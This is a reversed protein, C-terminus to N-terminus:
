LFGYRRRQGIFVFRRRHRRQRQGGPPGVQSSNWLVAHQVDSGALGASGVITSGDNSIAVANSGFGLNGLDTMIGADTTPNTLVWKFADSNFTPTTSFGVVITGDGSVANAQSMGSPGALTGLDQMGLAQTWRFAHNSTALNANTESSGVVVSGDNSVGFAASGSLPNGSLTGLDVLGGALTWRFAQSNGPLSFDTGVVVVNQSIANAIISGNPSGVTVLLPDLSGPPIFTVTFEIIPSHGTILGDINSAIIISDVPVFSELGSSVNLSQVNDQYIGV